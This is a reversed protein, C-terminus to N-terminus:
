KNSPTIGDISFPSTSPWSVMSSTTSTPGSFLFSFTPSRTTTGNVIDQPSHKKQLFPKNEPQSLDFGFWL